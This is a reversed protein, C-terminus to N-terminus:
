GSTTTVAFLRLKVGLKIQRLRNKKKKGNGDEAHAWVPHKSLLFPLLLLLGGDQIIWWIHITGQEPLLAGNKPYTPCGKFLIVAKGLNLIEDIMRLYEEAKIKDKELAISQKTNDKTGDEM